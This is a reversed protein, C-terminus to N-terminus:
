RAYPDTEDIAAAPRKAPTPVFPSDFDDTPTAMARARGNKQPKAAVPAAGLRAGVRAPPPARVLEISLYLDKAFSVQRRFRAFGPASVELLHAAQDAPVDLKLQSGQTVKGDLVLTAKEALVGIEIHSTSPLRAIEAVRVKATAPGPPPDLHKLAARSGGSGPAAGDVETKAPQGASRQWLCVDVAAGAVIVVAGIVVGRKKWRSSPPNPEFSPPPLPVPLIHINKSVEEESM